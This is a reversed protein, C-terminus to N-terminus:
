SPDDQIKLKENAKALLVKLNEEDNLKHTDPFKKLM